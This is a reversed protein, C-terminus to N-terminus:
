LSGSAKSRPYRFDQGRSCGCRRRTDSLPAADLVTPHVETRSLLRASHSSASLFRLASALCPGIPTSARDSYVSRVPGLPALPSIALAVGIAVISGCVISGTVGILGDLGTIAPGAGVARLVLLDDERASLQRAITQIALLLAALGAVGGFVGLALAEPKIAQEAETETQSAVLFDTFYREKATFEQEV